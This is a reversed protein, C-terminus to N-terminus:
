VFLPFRIEPLMVAPFNRQISFNIAEKRILRSLPPLIQKDSGYFLFLRELRLPLRKRFDM